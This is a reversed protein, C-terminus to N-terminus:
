HNASLKRIAAEATQFATQFPKSDASTAQTNKRYLSAPIATFLAQVLFLCWISLGISGTQVIAWIAAALSLATLGLDALASLMSSYFYLSRILWILGLHAMLYLIFPPNFLWLTGAATTWLALTTIKGIREQTQSLLYILYALGLIPILLKLAWSSTFITSLAAHTSGGILSAALAIALGNLLTPRKM